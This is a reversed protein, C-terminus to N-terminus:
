KNNIQFKFSLPNALAGQYNIAIQSINSDKILLLAIKEKLRILPTKNLPMLNFLINKM